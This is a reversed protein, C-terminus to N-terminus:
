DQKNQSVEGFRHSHPRRARRAHSPRQPRDWESNEAPVSCRSAGPLFGLPDWIPAGRGLRQLRLSTAQCPVVETTITELTEHSMWVKWSASMPVLTSQRPGVHHHTPTTSRFPLSQVSLAGAAGSLWTGAVVASHPARSQGLSSSFHLVCARCNALLFLLTTTAVLSELPQSRPQQTKKTNVGPVALPTALELWIATVVAPNTAGQLQNQKNFNLINFSPDHLVFSWNCRQNEQVPYIMKAHQLTFELTGRTTPPM